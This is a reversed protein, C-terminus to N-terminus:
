TSSRGFAPHRWTVDLARITLNSPAMEQYRALDASAQPTSIGFQDTLDSRNIRGEWFLRFDIFELRREIGWRLEDRGDDKIRKIGAGHGM